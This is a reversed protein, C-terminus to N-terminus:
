PIPPKQVLSSGVIFVGGFGDPTIPPLDSTTNSTFLRKVTLCKVDSHFFYFGPFGRLMGRFQKAEWFSRYLLVASRQRDDTTRTPRSNSENHTAAQIQRSIHQLVRLRARNIRQSSTGNDLVGFSKTAADALSEDTLIMCQSPRNALLLVQASPKKFAPTQSRIAQMIWLNAGNQQTSQGGCTTRKRLRRGM